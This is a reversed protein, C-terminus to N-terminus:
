EAHALAFEHAKIKRTKMTCNPGAYEMFKLYMDNKYSYETAPEHWKRWLDHLPQGWKKKEDM